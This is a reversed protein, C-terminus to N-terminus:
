GAAGNSAHVQRQAAVLAAKVAELKGARLTADLVANAM